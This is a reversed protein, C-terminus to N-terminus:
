GMVIPEIRIEVKDDEELLTVSEPIARYGDPPLVTITDPDDGDGQDMYIYYVDDGTGMHIERAVAWVYTLRNQFTLIAHLDVSDDVSEIKIYFPTSANEQALAPKEYYYDPVKHLLPTQARSYDMGTTDHPTVFRGSHAEAWAAGAMLFMFLFATFASVNLKKM